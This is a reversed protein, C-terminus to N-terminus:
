ARYGGARGAGEPGAVYAELGDQWPPLKRGTLLRLRGKDLVSYPPRRAPAGYADSTVPTVRAKGGLRAVIARAFEAWTCSGSASVHLIGSADVGLLAVLTESLHPVFTPCVTQDSVVRLEEVGERVRRAIAAVFSKGERSFLAQTRVVLSRRGLGLVAKEGERKSVGYRNLPNTADEELYPRRLRGDFVYDTSLYVLRMSRAACHRAVNGTGEANVLFARAADTEAGDVDTYGACHVIVDGDPMTAAVSEANTIDMEPLDVEAVDMGAARCDAAVQRGLMGKSGLVVVRM